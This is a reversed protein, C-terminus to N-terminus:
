ASTREGEGGGGGGYRYSTIGFERLSFSSKPEGDDCTMNPLM